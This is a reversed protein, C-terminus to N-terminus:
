YYVNKLSRVLGVIPSAMNNTQFCWDIHHTVMAVWRGRGLERRERVARRGVCVCVYLPRGDNLKIPCSVFFDGTM